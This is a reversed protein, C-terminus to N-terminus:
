RGVKSAQIELHGPLSSPTTFHGYCCVRQWLSYVPQVPTYAESLGMWSNRAVQLYVCCATKAQVEEGKAQRQGQSHQEDESRMFCGKEIQTPRRWFGERSGVHGGAKVQVEKIIQRSVASSYTAEDGARVSLPM